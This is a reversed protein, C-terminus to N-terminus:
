KQHECISSIDAQDLLADNNLTSHSTRGLQLRSLM